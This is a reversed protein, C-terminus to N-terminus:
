QDAEIIANVEALCKPCCTWLDELVVMEDGPWFEGCLDCPMMEADNFEHSM